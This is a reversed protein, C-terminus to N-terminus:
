PISRTLSPTSYRCRLAIAKIKEGCLPCTKTDGWASLPPSTSEPKALVPARPCGYTSCGGVEAWCERHHIQRCSPCTLALEGPGVNTQCIPCLTTTGTEPVAALRVVQADATALLEGRCRPCCVMKGVGDDPIRVQARCSCTVIVAM